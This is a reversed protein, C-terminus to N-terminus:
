AFLSLKDPPFDAIMREITKRRTRGNKLSQERQRAQASTAHEEYYVLAAPRRSATWRVLGERHEVLRRSLDGTSGYYYKGDVYRLIYTYYSMFQKKCRGLGNDLIDATLGRHMLLEDM